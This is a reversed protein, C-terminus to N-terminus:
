VKESPDVKIEGFLNITTALSNKNIQCEVSSVRMISDKNKSLQTVRVLSFPKIDIHINPVQVTCTEYGYMKKQKYTSPKFRVATGSNMTNNSVNTADKQIIASSEEGHQNLASHYMIGYIEPVYIITHGDKSDVGLEPTSANTNNDNVGQIHFKGHKDEMMQSMKLGHDRLNNIIYVIKDEIFINVNTDFISYHSDLYDIFQDFGKPTILDSNMKSASTVPSLALQAKPICKGVAYLIAGSVDGTFVGNLLSSNVGQYEVESYLAMKLSYFKMDKDLEDPSSNNKVKAADTESMLVVDTDIIATYAGNLIIKPVVSAGETKDYFSITLTAKQTPREESMTSKSLISQITSYPLYLEVVRIPLRNEIYNKMEYYGIVWDNNISVDGIKMEMDYIFDTNNKGTMITSM